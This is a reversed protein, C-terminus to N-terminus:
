KEYLAKKVQSKSVIFKIQTLEIADSYPVGADKLGWWYARIEVDKLLTDLKNELAKSISKNDTFKTKTV